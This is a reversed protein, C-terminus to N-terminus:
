PVGVSEAHELVSKVVNGVEDGEAWV